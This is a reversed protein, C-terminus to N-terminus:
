LTADMGKSADIREGYMCRIQKGLGAWGWRGGCDDKEAAHGKWPHSCPSSDTDTLATINLIHRWIQFGGGNSGYCVCVCVCARCEYKTSAM